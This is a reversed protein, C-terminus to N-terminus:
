TRLNIKRSFGSHEAGEPFRIRLGKKPYARSSGGYLRVQPNEDYVVGDVTLICDIYIDHYIEEQIHAFEIPDVALEYVPILEQMCFGQRCAHGERCESSAACEGCTGDLRCGDYQRCGEPATCTGCFGVHCGQGEECDIAGHICPVPPSSEDEDNEPDAEMEEDSDPDDIKDSIDTSDTEWDDSDGHLDGDTEILPDVDANNSNHPSSDSSDCGIGFLLLFAFSVLHVSLFAVQSNCRKMKMKNRSPSTIAQRM